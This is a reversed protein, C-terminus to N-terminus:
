EYILPPPGPATTLAGQESLRLDRTRDGIQCELKVYVFNEPPLTIENM